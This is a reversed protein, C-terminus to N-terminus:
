EMVVTPWPEEEWEITIEQDNSDQTNQRPIKKVSNESQHLEEEDMEELGSEESDYEESSGEEMDSEEPTSRGQPFKSASYCETEESCHESNATNQLKRLGSGSARVNGERNDATEFESRQIPVALPDREEEERINLPKNLWKQVTKVSPITFITRLFRYGAASRKYYEIMLRMFRKSFRNGTGPRNRLFMQSELFLVHEDSLFNKADRIVQEPTGADEVVAFRSELTKYKKLLLHYRQRHKNLLRAYKKKLEKNASKYPPIHGPPRGATAKQEIPTIPFCDSSISTSSPIKRTGTNGQQTNQQLASIVQKLTDSTVPSSSSIPVTPLAVWRVNQNSKPGSKNAQGIGATGDPMNVYRYMKVGGKRIKCPGSAFGVAASKGESKNLSSEDVPSSPGSSSFDNSIEMDNVSSEIGSPFTHDQDGSSECSVLPHISTIPSKMTHKSSETTFTNTHTCNKSQSVSSIISQTMILPTRTKHVETGTKSFKSSAVSSFDSCLSSQNNVGNSKNGVESVKSSSTPFSDLQASTPASTPESGGIFVPPTVIQIPAQPAGPPQNQGPPLQITFTFSPTDTGSTASWTVVVPTQSSTQPFNCQAKNLLALQQNTKVAVSSDKPLVSANEFSSSAAEYLSDSRNAVSHYQIKAKNQLPQDSPLLTESNPLQSEAYKKLPQILGKAQLVKLSAKNLIMFTRKGGGKTKVIQRKVPGSYTRHVHYVPKTGESSLKERKEKCKSCHCDKECEADEREDVITVDDEDVVIPEEDVSAESSFKATLDHGNAPCEVTDSTPSENQIEKPERVRLLSDVTTNSQSHPSSVSSSASNLQSSQSSSISPLLLDTQLSQTGNVPSSTTKLQFPQVTGAPESTNTPNQQPPLISSSLMSTKETKLQPPQVTNSLPFTDSHSTATTPVSVAHSQSLQTTCSLSPTSGPQYPVATSMYLTKESQTPQVTDEALHALRDTNEIQPWSDLLTENPRIPEDKVHSLLTSTPTDEDGNSSLKRTSMTGGTLRSPVNPTSSVQSASFSSSGSPSWVDALSPKAFNMEQQYSTAISRNMEELYKSDRHSLNTEEECPSEPSSDNGSPSLFLSYETCDDTTESHDHKLIGEKTDPRYSPSDAVPSSPNSLDLHNDQDMMSEEKVIVDEDLALSWDFKKSGKALPLPQALVTSETPQIATIGMQKEQAEINKAVSAKNDLSESIGLSSTSQTESSEYDTVPKPVACWILRSKNNPSMYMRDEFHLSCVRMSMRNTIAKSHNLDPRKILDCWIKFREKSKPFSHFSLEPNDTKNSTCGKAKCCSGKPM